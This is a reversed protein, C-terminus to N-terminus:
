RFGKVGATSDNAQEDPSEEDAESGTIGAPAGRTMGDVPNCVQVQGTEDGRDKEEDEWDSVTNKEEIKGLRSIAGSNFLLAEVLSTKGSSQHGVLAINRIKDSAYEKM